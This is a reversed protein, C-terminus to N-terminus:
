ELPNIDFHIVSIADHDSFVLDSALIIKDELTEVFVSSLGQPFGSIMFGVAAGEVPDTPEGNLDFYIIKDFGNEVIGAGFATEAEVFGIILGNEITMDKSDALELLKKDSIFPVKQLGKNRSILTRSPTVPTNMDLLSPDAGRSLTLKSRNDQNLNIEEAGDFFSLEISAIDREPEFPDFFELHKQVKSLDVRIPSVKGQEVVVIRSDLIEGNKEILLEYDGDQLGVFSFLGNAFTEKADITAFGAQMIYIPKAKELSVKFGSRNAIGIIEGFITGKEEVEYIGLENLFSFFSDIYKNTFLTIEASQKSDLMFISDKFGEKSAIALTRSNSKKWNYFHFEGRSDSLTSDNFSYLAVEVNDVAKNVGIGLGDSHVVKGAYDWDIPLVQINAAIFESGSPAITLDFVGEGILEDNNDYLSIIIDGILQSVEIEYEADPVNISGVQLEHDGVVWSVEMSGFFALGKKLEIGGSIVYRDPKTIPKEDKGKANFDPESQNNILKSGDPKSQTVNRVPQKNQPKKVFSPNVMAVLSGFKMEEQALKIEAKKKIEKSRLVKLGSLLNNKNNSKKSKLSNMALDGDFNDFIIERPTKKIPKALKTETPKEPKSFKDFTKTEEGAILEYSERDPFLYEDEFAAFAPSFHDLEIHFADTKFYNETLQNTETSTLFLYGFIIMFFILKPILYNIFSEFYGIKRM